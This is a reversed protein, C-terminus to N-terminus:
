HLLRRLAEVVNGGEKKLTQEAMEDTVELESVIFKVDEPNVKIAAWERNFFPLSPPLSPPSPLSSYQLPSPPCACLSSWFLFFLFPEYLV